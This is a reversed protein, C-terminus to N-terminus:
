RGSLEPGSTPTRGELSIRNPPPAPTPHAAKSLSARDMNWRGSLQPGAVTGPGTPAKASRTRAANM